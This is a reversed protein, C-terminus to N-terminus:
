LCLRSFKDFWGDVGAADGTAVTTLRSCGPHM